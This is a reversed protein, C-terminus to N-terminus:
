KPIKSAKLFNCSCQPLVWMSEAMSVLPSLVCLTPSRLAGPWRTTVALGCAAGHSIHKQKFVGPRNHTTSENATFGQSALNYSQGSHLEDWMGEQVQSPVHCNLELAGGPLRGSKGPWPRWVTWTGVTQQGTPQRQRSGRARFKPLLGAGPGSLHQATYCSHRLNQFSRERLAQPTRFECVCVCVSEDMTKASLRWESSHGREECFNYWWIHM